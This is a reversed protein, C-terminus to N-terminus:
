GNFSDIDVQGPIGPISGSWSKQWMWCHRTPIRDPSAFWLKHGFPAGPLSELFYANSYFPSGIKQGAVTDLFQKAWAALDPWSMGEQVELDLSLGIDRPLDKIKAMAFAAQSEATSQSPHAFHYYGVHMGVSQAGKADYTLWPNVYDMGETAKIIVGKYGAKAIKKWDFPQNNEHNNASIDFM